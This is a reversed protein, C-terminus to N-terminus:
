LYGKLLEANTYIIDDLKKEEQELVTICSLYLEEPMKIDEPLKYPKYPILRPLGNQMLWRWNVLNYFKTLLGQALEPKLAIFGKQDNLLLLERDRAHLNNLALTTVGFKKLIRERIFTLRMASSSYSKNAIKASDAKLKLSTYDENSLNYLNQIFKLSKLHKPTVVIVNKFRDRYLNILWNYDLKEIDYLELKSKAVLSELRKYEESSCFFEHPPRVMGQHITQQYVSKLYSLPERLTLLIVADEGFIDRNKDAREQWFHPNTSALSELSILLNQYSDVVTRM